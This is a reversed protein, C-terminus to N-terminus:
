PRGRGHARTTSTASTTTTSQRGPATASPGSRTTTSGNGNGSGPSTTTATTVVTTAGSRGSRAGITTTTSGASRAPNGTQAAVIAPVPTSVAGPGLQPPTSKPTPALVPGVGPLSLHSVWPARALSAGLLFLYAVVLLVVSRGTWRVVGARVPSADVFVQTREDAPTPQDNGTSM